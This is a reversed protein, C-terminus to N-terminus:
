RKQRLPVWDGGEGKDFRATLGIIVHLNKELVLIANLGPESQQRFRQVSPGLRSLVHRLPFFLNDLPSLLTDASPFLADSSSRLGLARVM